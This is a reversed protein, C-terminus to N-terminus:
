YCGVAVEETVSSGNWTNGDARHYEKISTGDAKTYVVLFVQGTEIEMPYNNYPLVNGTVPYEQFDEYADELRWFERCSYDPLVASLDVKGYYSATYAKDGVQIVDVRSSEMQLSFTSLDETTVAGGYEQYLRAAMCPVSNTTDLAELGTHALGYIGMVRIGPLSVSEPAGSGVGDSGESGAEMGDTEMRGAEDPRSDEELHDPTDGSLLGELERIFNEAMKNERYVPDAHQYYYQGQEVNEQALRYTDTAEQGHAKLYELFRKGTTDYQHGVDTGHFITEPCEKKIKKYFDVVERSHMATGEWDQYLQELIGDEGSQMWLNMYAATYYPLEVFLHRMDDEWYHSSWIELEKALIGEQAHIEGYLFIHAPQQVKTQSTAQLPVISFSGRHDRAVIKVKVTGQLVLPYTGTEMHDQAFLLNGGEDMVEVSLSGEKTEVQIEYPASEREPYIKKTMTGTLLSYSASWEKIGQHSTYGMRIMCQGQEFIGTASLLLAGGLLLVMVACLALLGCVKKKRTLRKSDRASEGKDRACGQNDQISEVHEGAGADERDSGEKCPHKEGDQTEKKNGCKRGLIYLPLFMGGLYLLLVTQLIGMQWGMGPKLLMVLLGALPMAVMTAASWIRLSKVLYPWNRNNFHVGPVNMRFIGDSYADIPYEDYYAPLREKMFLWFYVGFGFSMAGMFAFFIYYPDTGTEHQYWIGLFGELLTLLSCGGFLFGRKKRREKAKEPTEESFALVKKVLLEVHGTDMGAAQDIKRGELLETVTVGLIEALPILLSIDPMSLAREWKSVAKDSVFLKGALEKQTYGKEKRQKALFEGFTEKDLEYM